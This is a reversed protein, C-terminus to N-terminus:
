CPTSKPLKLETFIIDFKVDGVACRVTEAGDAHSVVRCGLKSIMSEMVRRSVPNDECVLILMPGESPIGLVDLPRYRPGVNMNMISERRTHERRQNVRLLANGKAEETDSSSPSNEFVQSRRRSPIKWNEPFFSKPSLSGSSVSAARMRPPMTNRRNHQTDIGSLPEASRRKIVGSHETLVPSNQASNNSGVSRSGRRSSTESEDDRIASPLLASPKRVKSPYTSPLPNIPSQDSGYSSSLVSSRSLPPTSITPNSLASPPSNFNFFSGSGSSSASPSSVSQAKGVSTSISKQRLKLSSTPPISSSPSSPSGLSANEARLREITDKNAKELVPLNKFVFSGFDIENPPDSSRRDRRRSQERVHPPISLPLLGGRKLISADTKSRTLSTLGKDSAKPAPLTSADESTEEEPFDPLTGTLGRSDFYDTDEPHEPAPVFPTDDECLTDWNIDAFFPHSKVEEAGGAGLRKTSDICMLKNMIDKAADSADEDDDVEPWDIRRALINEFVKEPSEDHFPPYGYLFEFLICGVAWWDVMGDQGSGDITEPALYDPTGVFKRSKDNPDFLAMAPLQMSAASGRSASHRKIVSPRNIETNSNNLHHFGLGSVASMSDSSADEDDSTARSHQKSDSLSLNGLSSTIGEDGADFSRAVSVRRGTDFIGSSTPPLNFYSPMNWPTEPIIVPTSVPSPHLDYSTSRSSGRSIPRAIFRGQHVPDIPDLNGEAENARRQRGILGM